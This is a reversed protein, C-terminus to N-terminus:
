VAMNEDQRIMCLATRQRAAGATSQVRITARRWTGRKKSESNRAQPSAVLRRGSM